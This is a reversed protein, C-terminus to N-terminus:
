KSPGYYDLIMGNVQCSLTGLGNSMSFGSAHPFQRSNFEYFVAPTNKSGDISVTGLYLRLKIVQTGEGGPCVFSRALGATCSYEWQSITKTFPFHPGTQTPTTENQAWATSLLPGALLLTGLFLARSMRGESLAAMALMKKMEKFGATKPGRVSIQSRTRESRGSGRRFSKLGRRSWPRTGRRRVASLRAREAVRTEALRRRLAFASVRDGDDM